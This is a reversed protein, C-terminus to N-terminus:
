FIRRKRSLIREYFKDLELKNNHSIFKGRKEINLMSPLKIVYVIECEDIKSKRFDSIEFNCWEFCIKLYEEFLEKLTTIEDKTSIYCNPFESNENVLFEFFNDHEFPVKIDQRIALLTLKVKM